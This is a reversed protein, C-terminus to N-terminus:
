RKSIALMRALVYNGYYKQLKNVIVFADPYKRFSNLKDVYETWTILAPTDFINNGVEDLKLLKFVDDSGLTHWYWISLQMRTAIEETSRVTKAKAVMDMLTEVGFQNRLVSLIADDENSSVKKALYDVWVSWAPSEFIKDGDEKLRLLVFVDEVTKREKSWRKLQIEELESAIDNSIEDKKTVGIMRAIQAEDYGNNKFKLLLLKYPNRKMTKVYSVWTSLVQNKLLDMGDENLKLIKFVDGAKSQSSVKWGWFQLQELDTAIRNSTVDSKALVIMKALEADGYSTKLQLFLENSARKGICKMYSRWTELLPNNLVNTGQRDLKLLKFVDVSNKRNSKWYRQQANEFHMATPRTEAVHMAAVLMNALGDDGFQRTLTSVMAIDGKTDFKYDKSVRTKWQEFQKSSFIAPNADFRKLGLRKFLKDVTYQKYFPFTNKAVNQLSKIGRQSLQNVKAAGLFARDEATYHPEAISTGSSRLRQIAQDDNTGKGYSISSTTGTTLQKSSVWHRLAASDLVNEAKEKDMLFLKFIDDPSKAYLKWHNLVAPVLKRAVTDTTGTYDAGIFTALREDNYSFLLKLVVYSYSDDGSKKAEFAVWTSFAPNKTINGTEKNLSLLDFVADSTKGRSLWNKLEVNELKTAVNNYPKAAVIMKALLEEGIQMQLTSLMVEEPYKLIKYIKGFIKGMFKVVPYRTDKGADSWTRLQADKLQEVIASGRAEYLLKALGEIGHRETLTTVMAMQGELVNTKYEKNVSRYWNRFQTSELINSEVKDVGYKTYLKNTVLQNNLTLKLKVSAALHDLKQTASSTLEKHKSVSSEVLNLGRDDSNENNAGTAVLNRFSRKSQVRRLNGGPRQTLHLSNEEVRFNSTIASVCSVLAIVGLLIFFRRHAFLHFEASM